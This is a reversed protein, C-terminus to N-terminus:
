ALAVIAVTAWAVLLGLVVGGVVDGIYHRKLMVRTVIVALVSLVLLVKVLIQPFITWLVFALIAARASHISPFSGADIKTIWSKYKQKKPRKRFFILRILSVIAYSIIFAIILIISTETKGIAFFLVTIFGYVALGGLATTDRLVEELM